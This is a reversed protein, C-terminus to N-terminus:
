VPVRDLRRFAARRADPVPQLGGAGFVPGLIARVEPDSMKWVHRDYLFHVFSLGFRLSMVVPVVHSIMAYDPAFAPVSFGRARWIWAPASWVFGIGGLLLVGLAFGWGRATPRSGGRASEVRSPLGIAVVWHNVFFM